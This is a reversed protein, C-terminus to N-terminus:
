SILLSDKQIAPVTFHVQRCTLNVCLVCCSLSSKHLFSGFFSAPGVMVGYFVDEPLFLTFFMTIYPYSPVAWSCGAGVIGAKGLRRIGSGLNEKSGKSFPDPLM